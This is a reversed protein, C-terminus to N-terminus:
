LVNRSVIPMPPLPPGILVGGVSPRGGPSPPIREVACAGFFRPSTLCLLVGLGLLIASALRLQIGLRGTHLRLALRLDFLLPTTLGLGVCLRCDSGSRCRLAFPGVRKGGSLGGILSPSVGFRRPCGCFCLSLSRLCGDCLSFPVLTFEACLDLLLEIDDEFSGL